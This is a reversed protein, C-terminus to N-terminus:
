IFITGDTKCPELRNIANKFLNVQPAVRNVRDLELELKDLNEDSAFDDDFKMPSDINMINELLKLSEENFTDIHVLAEFFKNVNMNDGYLFGV